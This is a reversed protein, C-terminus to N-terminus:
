LLSVPDVDVATRADSKLLGAARVAGMASQVLRASPALLLIELRHHEAIRSIACPSPGLVRVRRDSMRRLADALTEAAQQAKALDRDRCVIRAMRAAPPLGADRRAALEANAFSEFRHEAALRLAPADPEFAQVIVRGKTRGRGSRGAVQSTLQFTREAARFDPLGLAADACLVGVLSVNPFDLGKAIMQTGLLVRVEGRAFRDLSEFYDAGTRMSDSDLRLLTRGMELVCEPGVRESSFDRVLQEEVRQTGAGMRVLRGSCVPCTGPVIQEALCHHCRVVAGRPLASGTHLVLRADCHDCDLAWGCASSACCLYHAYGRRNMLLIAQERRSLTERLASALRASLLPGSRGANRREELMDVIEVRPLTAGGVRETLRWLAYRADPGTANAWSELSPTASGLLVPCGCLRARMVAVDRANYRPLQDQKYSTDHEEDVVILGLDTLPAFVASRAGIVVRADGTAARKWERHRQAATLGSHLVAVGAGAFREAFRLGTQPTLAIEPVLVLASGGAEIVRGILRLYVETKGSGTVGYLLHTAFGGLTRSIGAEVGTQAETPEPFATPPTESLGPLADSRASVVDREVEELLGLKRLRNVERVTPMGLRSALDRASLPFVEGPLEALRRRADAVKPSLGETPEAGELRDLLRVRRSGIGDKVAAPIMTAMAMGLPCVYYESLWRGLDVLDEPIIAAAVALVPKLARAELGEALEEGGVQVVIGRTPSDGRGLPVTVHTGPRIPPEALYTLADWAEPPGGRRREMGREIAVRVLVRGELSPGAGDDEFLSRAM